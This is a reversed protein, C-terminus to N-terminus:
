KQGQKELFAYLLFTGLLFFHLLALKRALSLDHSQVFAAAAVDFADFRARFELFASGTLFLRHSHLAPHLLCCALVYATVESIDKRKRVPNVARTTISLQPHLTRESHTM